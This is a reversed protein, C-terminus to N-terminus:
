RGWFKLERAASKLKRGLWVDSEALYGTLPNTDKKAQREGLLALWRYHDYACDIRGQGRIVEKPKSSSSPSDCAAM